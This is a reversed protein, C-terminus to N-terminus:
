FLAEARTCTFEEIDTVKWNDLVLDRPNNSDPAFVEETYKNLKGSTRDLYWTLKRLDTKNFFRIETGIEWYESENVGWKATGKETDIIFNIPPKNEDNELRECKLYTVQSWVSTAM